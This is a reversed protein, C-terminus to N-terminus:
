SGSHAPALSHPSVSFRIDQDPVAQAPATAVGPNRFRLLDRGRFQPLAAQVRLLVDIRRVRLLDADFRNPALADPCWPGDTFLAAGARALRGGSELVALRSRHQEGDVLFTCNEGPLWADRSHDM